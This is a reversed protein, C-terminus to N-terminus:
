EIWLFVPLCTCPSQEEKQEARSQEEKQEERKKRLVRSVSYRPPHHLGRKPKNRESAPWGWRTTTGGESVSYWSPSFSAKWVRAATLGTM